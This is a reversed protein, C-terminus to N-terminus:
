LIQKQLTMRLLKEFDNRSFNNIKVKNGFLSDCFFIITEELPMNNFFSKVDLSAMFLGSDQKIVEKAFKFNNKITFKNATIPELIPVLHQAINYYPTKISPRSSLCNNILSKNIKCLGYLMGCKSGRPKRKKYETDSIM